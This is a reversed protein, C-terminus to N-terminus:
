RHTVEERPTPVTPQGAPTTGTGTALLLYAATILVLNKIVFEGDTTLLLPNGHRIVFGTATVFVLFTGTLHTVLLALALRRLPGVLLSVGLAVEAAGLGPVLLGGPVWPVTQMLLAKVPSQGALKLAGFWILVVALSLRLARYAYRDLPAPVRQDAERVLTLARSV